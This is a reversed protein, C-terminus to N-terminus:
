KRNIINSEDIKIELTEDWIHNKSTFKGLV